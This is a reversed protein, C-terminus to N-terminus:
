PMTSWNRWVPLRQLPFSSEVLARVARSSLDSWCRGPCPMNSGSITGQGVSGHKHWSSPPIESIRILKPPFFSRMRTSPGRHRRALKPQDAPAWRPSSSRPCLRWAHGRQFCRHSSM